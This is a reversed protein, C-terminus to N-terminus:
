GGRKSLNCRLEYQHKIEEFGPSRYNDRKRKEEEVLKEAMVRENEKREKEKCSVCEVNSDCFGRLEGPVLDKVTCARGTNARKADCRTVFLEGHRKGCQNYLVKYKCMTRTSSCPLKSSLRNQHCSVIPILHSTPISTSGQGSHHSGKIIPAYCYTYSPNVNVKSFPTSSDNSGSRFSVLPCLFSSRSFHSKFVTRHDDITDIM